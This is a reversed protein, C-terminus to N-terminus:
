EEILAQEGANERARAELREREEREEREQATETRRRAGGGRRDRVKQEINKAFVLNEVLKELLTQLKVLQLGTYEGSAKARDIDERIQAKLKQTSKEKGYNKQAKIDPFALQIKEKLDSAQAQKDIKEKAEETTYARRNSTPQILRAISEDTKIQSYRGTQSRPISQTATIVENALSRGLATEIVSKSKRQRQAEEVSGRIIEGATEDLLEEEKRKRLNDRAKKKERKKKEKFERMHDDIRKTEINYDKQRAQKLILDRAIREDEQIQIQAELRDAYAKDGAEQLDKLKQAELKLQEQVKQEVEPSKVEQLFSERRQKVTPSVPELREEIKEEAGSILEGVLDKAIDRKDEEPESRPSLFEDEEVTEFGSDDRLVELKQQVLRERNREKALLPQNELSSVIDSKVETISKEKPLPRPKNKRNRFAKLLDEQSRFPVEVQGGVKFRQEPEPEPVPEPVKKRQELRQDAGSILEGVLDKAISRSSSPPFSPNVIKEQPLKLVPRTNPQPREKRDQEARELALARKISEQKRFQEDSVSQAQQRATRQKERAEIGRERRQREQREKREFEDIRKQNALRRNREEQKEIGRRIRQQQIQNQKEELESVFKSKEEKVEAPKEVPKEDKKKVEERLKKIEKALDSIVETKGTNKSESFFQNIDSGTRRNPIRQTQQLSITQKQLAQLKELEIQERLLQIADKQKKSADQKKTTKKRPKYKGRSADKITKTTKLVVEVKGGSGVRAKAGAKAPIQKVTKKSKKPM